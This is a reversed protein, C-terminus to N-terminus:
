NKPKNRRNKHNNRNLKLQSRAKRQKARQSWKRILYRTITIMKNKDLMMWKSKSMKNNRHNKSKTRKQSKLNRQKNRSVRWMMKLKVKSRKIKKAKWKNTPKKRARRKPQRRSNLKEPNRLKWKNRYKNITKLNSTITSIPSKQIKIKKLNRPKRKNLDKLLQIRKKQRLQSGKAKSEQKQRVESRKRRVWQNRVRWQKKSKMRNPNPPILKKHRDKRQNRVRKRKIHRFTPWKSKLNKIDSKKISNKTTAKPKQHM